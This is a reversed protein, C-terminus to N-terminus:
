ALTSFIDNIVNACVSWNEGAEKETRGGVRLYFEGAYPDFSDDIENGENIPEPSFYDEYLPQFRIEFLTRDWCWHWPEESQVPTRKYANQKLNGSLPLDIDFKYAPVIGSFFFNYSM